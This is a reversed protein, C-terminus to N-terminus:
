TLGHKVCLFGDYASSEFYKGAHKKYVTITYSYFWIQSDQWPPMKWVYCASKATSSQNIPVTSITETQRCVELREYKWVTVAALCFPQLWTKCSSDCSTEHIMVSSRFLTNLLTKVYMCNNGNKLGEAKNAKYREIRKWLSM